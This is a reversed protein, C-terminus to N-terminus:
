ILLMFAHCLAYTHVPAASKTHMVGFHHMCRLAFCVFDIRSTELVIFLAETCKVTSNVLSGTVVITGSSHDPWWDGM